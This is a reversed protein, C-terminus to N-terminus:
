AIGLTFFVPDMRQIIKGIGASGSHIDTASNPSSSSSCIYVNSRSRTEANYFRITRPILYIPANAVIKRSEGERERGEGLDSVSQELSM